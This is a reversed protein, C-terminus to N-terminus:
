AEVGGRAPVDSSALGSDERGMKLLYFALLGTMAAAFLLKVISPLHPEHIQSITGEILGAAVFIPLTGLVMRVALKGDARLADGRSREGPAVMARGIVLGGAGALCIATIEPVGHPLIWAWFWIAHGKVEYVQALAGLFLGNVFLVVVTGIGLTLGLAFALFAVQINHTFLFSSFATQTQLGMGQDTRAERSIREDPDLSQHDDPVLFVGAREDLHMGAWGLFAGGWFLAFAAFVAKWQSRVLRPFGAGYFSLVDHLRPRQGPYTQAYGRAVLDNLYEVLEASAAHARAWLLDSSAARYLRGFERAEELELSKLGQGEIQDLLKSLRTWRPRGRELFENLDM